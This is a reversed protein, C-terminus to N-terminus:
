LHLIKNAVELTFKQLFAPELIVGPARQLFSCDEPDYCWLNEHTTVLVETFDTGTDDVQPRPLVNKWFILVVCM